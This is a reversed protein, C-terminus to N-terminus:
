LFDFYIVPVSFLKGLSLTTFSLTKVLGAKQVGGLDCHHANKTESLSMPVGHLISVGLLLAAPSEMGSHGTELTSGGIRCVAAKIGSNGPHSCSLSLDRLHSTNSRLFSAVSACGSLRCVCLVNTLSSLLKHTM